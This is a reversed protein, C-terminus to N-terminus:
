DGDEHSKEPKVWLSFLDNSWDLFWLAFESVTVREPASTKALLTALSDVLFRHMAETNERNRMPGFVYKLVPVEKLSKILEPMGEEEARFKEELATLERELFAFFAKLDNQEKAKTEQKWLKLIDYLIRQAARITWPHPLYPPIGPLMPANKDKLLNDIVAERAEFGRERLLRQAEKGSERLQEIPARLKAM